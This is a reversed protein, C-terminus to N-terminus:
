SLQSEEALKAADHIQINLPGDMHCKPCRYIGTVVECDGFDERRSAHGCRVCIHVHIFPNNAYPTNTRVRHGRVKWRMVSQMNAASDM